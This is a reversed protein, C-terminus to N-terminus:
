MGSTGLICAEIASESCATDKLICPIIAPAEPDTKCAALCDDKSIPQGSDGKIYLGCGYIHDCAKGCDGTGTSSGCNMVCDYQTKSVCETDSGCQSKALAACQDACSGTSSSGTNGSTLDEFSVTQVQGTKTDKVTCTGTGSASVECDVTAYGQIDVHLEGSGDKHIQVLVDVTEATGNGDVDSEFSGTVYYDGTENDLTVNVSEDKIGDGDLDAPVDKWVPDGSDGAQVTEKTQGGGQVQASENTSTKGEIVSDKDAPKLGKAGSILDKGSLKKKLGGSGGDCGPAGLATLAAAVIAIRIFRNM